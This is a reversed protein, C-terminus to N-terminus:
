KIQRKHGKDSNEIVYGRIELRLLNNGVEWIFDLIEQVNKIINRKM